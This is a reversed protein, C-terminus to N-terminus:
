AAEKRETRTLFFEEMHQNLNNKDCAIVVNVRWKLVLGGTLGFLCCFLRRQM